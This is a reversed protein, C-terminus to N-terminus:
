TIRSLDVVQVPGTNRVSSVQLRGVNSGMVELIAEMDTAIALRASVEATYDAESESDNVPSVDCGIVGPSAVTGLVPAGSRDFLTLKGRFAM